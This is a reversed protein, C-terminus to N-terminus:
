LVMIFFINNHLFHFFTLFNQFKSKECAYYSNIEAYAHLTKIEYNKEKNVRPGEKKTKTM